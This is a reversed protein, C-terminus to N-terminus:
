NTARFSFKQNDGGHCAWQIIPAGDDMSGGSVDLCKNSHRPHIFYYGDSTKELWFIENTGGWYTWQMLPPGDQTAGPGGNIDFQLGSAVNNVRYGGVVAVFQLKQQGTGGCTKQQFVGAATNGQVSEM